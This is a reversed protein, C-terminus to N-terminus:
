AAPLPRKVRGLTVHARYPREERAIGLASCVTDVNGALAALQDMPEIGMWVVRARRFNPFAGFSGLRVNVPHTEEGLKHLAAVLRPVLEADREGLFKLTLHLREATIWAVDPAADRLASATKHLRARLEADFNAAIFLRM